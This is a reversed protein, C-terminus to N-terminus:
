ALNPYSEKLGIFTYKFCFAADENSNAVAIFTDFYNTYRHFQVGPLDNEIEKEYSFNSDSIAFTCNKLDALTKFEKADSEERSCSSMVVLAVVLTALILVIKKKFFRYIM